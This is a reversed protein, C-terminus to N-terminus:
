KGDEAELVGRYTLTVNINGTVLLGPNANEIEVRITEDPDLLVGGYGFSMASVPTAIMNNFTTSDWFPRENGDLIYVIQGVPTFPNNLEHEPVTVSYLDVPSDKPCFMRPSDIDTLDNLATPSVGPGAGLNPFVTGYLMIPEGEKTGVPSGWPVKLGNFMISMPITCTTQNLLWFPSRQMLAKMRQGPYIRYPTKQGCSWDWIARGPHTLDMFVRYDYLDETMYNRGDVGIRIRLPTGDATFRGAVIMLIDQVIARKTGGTAMRALNSVSFGGTLVRAAKWPPVSIIERRQFPLYNIAM